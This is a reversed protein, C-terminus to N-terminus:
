KKELEFRALTQELAFQEAKARTMGAEFETIGAREEFYERANEDLTEVIAAIDVDLPIPYNSESM